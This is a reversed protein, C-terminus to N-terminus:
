RAPCGSLNAVRHLGLRRAVERLRERSAAFFRGLLRGTRLKEFRAGWSEVSSGLRELIGSLEASIVAKGERFLRGTYDVLMLYSGLSFGELMGERSSDLARRDEIPCLWVSEELGASARSGAVSGQKAAALDSTRGQAKVHEVRTTVSTHPSAEPVAVIGAAVPNLDIYACTALLSEEDLIAVSKFREEFFAGRTNDQRNALRALPEKLCKMFWSLSQLRARATAVWRADKLRWQVWDASVPVPQRSKDRPPFLRGWRRVVEEDSWGTAVDPDLRALLHLHTDLVSFGGVSVAFIEALEQLRREIWEKRNCPGEGLLVARRVCRTICHYWRTVSVDVLHARAITM